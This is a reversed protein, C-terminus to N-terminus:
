AVLAHRLRSNIRMCGVPGGSAVVIRSSPPEAAVLLVVSKLSSAIITYLHNSRSAPLKACSLM